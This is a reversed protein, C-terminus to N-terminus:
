STDIPTTTARLARAPSLVEIMNMPGECLPCRRVDIEAIRLKQDEATERIQQELGNCGLLERCRSLSKQRHRSALLGFHRIRMFGAPLVHLLFRRIFETAPLEMTKLRDGDAYDKWRFRVCDGNLGVIRDNSIAVRHTYRGLYGLVQRPGAFPRKAYVVWPKARLNRLLDRFTAGDALKVLPGELRLTESRFARELYDLYKGRFVKSLARVPFLFGKRGSIWQQGDPSLGGGTVLCHLHVHQSLNQGWTHLVATVGLEAGLHKRDRAFTQLTESAARFLLNYLVRHNQLVLPNLEHPVTFVIHFYEVPLLLAQQVDLWKARALNQCKPCHRNRCSNYSIRTHGCGDCRDVHGGLAATRCREIARM